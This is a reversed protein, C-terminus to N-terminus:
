TPPMRYWCAPLPMDELDAGNPRDLPHPFQLAPTAARVRDRRLFTFEMVRPIVVSGKRAFPVCNNPHLHVVVFDQLLRELCLNVLEFGRRTFLMELEHFEIVIIRFRRLVEAPTDLLVGYEAGEIDMQLLLDGGPPACRDVWRPLRIHTAGEIPGLFMKEFHFRPNDVPPGDVSADALFCDIGRAAMEAEFDAVTSVGPSFCAHLGELDDPVLYGGDGEGGIRILAHGTNWPRTSHFLDTLRDAEVAHTVSLGDRELMRRLASRMGRNHAARQQFRLLVDSDQAKWIRKRILEEELMGEFGHQQSMGGAAFRVLPPIRLVEGPGFQRVYRSLHDYDAAIRYHRDFGGIARSRAVSLIAGPHPCAMRVPMEAPDPQAVTRLAELFVPAFRARPDDPGPAPLEMLARMGDQLLTDGAGLVLYRESALHSLGQNMAEYLSRDRTKLIHVHPGEFRRVFAESSTDSFKLTWTFGPGLWPKLSDFTAQLPEPDGLVCTLVSLTMFPAPLHPTLTVTARIRSKM